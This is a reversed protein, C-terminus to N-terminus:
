ARIVPLPQRAPAAGFGGYSITVAWLALAAILVMSVLMGGARLANPAPREMGYPHALRALIFLLAAIWLALSWAGNYELLGLLILFFPANETFNAHARMRALVVPHGGDGISTKTKLRVASIRLSLWIHLLALAAATTLTIPLLM